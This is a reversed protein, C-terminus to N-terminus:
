PMVYTSFYAHMIETYERITKEQLVLSSRDDEYYMCRVLQSLFGDIRLHVVYKDNFFVCKKINEDILSPIIRM